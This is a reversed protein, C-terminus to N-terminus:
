KFCSLTDMFIYYFDTYESGLNHFFVDGTSNLTGPYGEM